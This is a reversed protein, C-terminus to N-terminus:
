GMWEWVDEAACVSFNCPNLRDVHGAPDEALQKPPKVAYIQEFAEITEKM